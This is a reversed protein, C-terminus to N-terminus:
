ASTRYPGSSHLLQNSSFHKNLDQAKCLLYENHVNNEKAKDLTPKHGDVGVSYQFNLFRILSNGGCGIDLCTKCDSLQKQLDFIYLILTLKPFLKFFLKLENM